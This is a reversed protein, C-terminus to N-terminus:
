WGSSFVHLRLEEWGVSSLLVCLVIRLPFPRRSLWNVLASMFVIGLSAGPLATALGLVSVTVKVSAEEKNLVFMAQMDILSQKIERYVQRERVVTACLGDITALLSVRPVGLHLGQTASVSGIFFLPISLQFLLGNVLILDGVTLTGARSPANCLWHGDVAGVAIGRLARAAAVDHVPACPLM